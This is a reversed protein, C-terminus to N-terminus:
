TQALVEPKRPLRFYGVKNDKNSPKVDATLAVRKGTLEIYNSDALNFLKNPITGRYINGADAKLTMKLVTGFDGEEAWTKVILGALRVGKAEVVPELCASEEERALTRDKYQVWADVLTSAQKDSLFGQHRAKSVVDEIFPPIFPWNRSDIEIIVAVVEPHAGLAENVQTQRKTEKRLRARENRADLKAREEPTYETALNPDVGSGGCRYCTFGPWGVYGGAGGCRACPQKHKTSM